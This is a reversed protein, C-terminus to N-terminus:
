EVVRDMSVGLVEMERGRKELKKYVRKAERLERDLKYMKWVVCLIDCVSIIIATIQLFFIYQLFIQKENPRAIWCSITEHQHCPSMFPDEQHRGGHNCIFKEPITLIRELYLKLKQFNFKQPDATTGDESTETGFAHETWRKLQLNAAISMFIIELFIKLCCHLIYAVQIRHAKWAPITPPKEYYLSTPKNKNNGNEDPNRIKKISPAEAFTSNFPNTVNTTGGHAGNRNLEELLEYNKTIENQIKQIEEDIEDTDSSDSSGGSGSGSGSDSSSSSDDDEEVFREGNLREL